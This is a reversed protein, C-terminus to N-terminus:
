LAFVDERLLPVQLPGYDTAYHDVCMGIDLSRMLDRTALTDGDGNDVITEIDVMRFEGTGSFDHGRAVSRQLGLVRARFIGRTGTRVTALIVTGRACPYGSAITSQPGRADCRGGLEQGNAQRRAEPRLALGVGKDPRGIM